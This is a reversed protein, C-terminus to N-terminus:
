APGFDSTTTSSIPRPVDVSSPNAIAQATKSAKCEAIRQRSNKGCMEVFKRFQRIPQWPQLRVRHPDLFPLTGHHEQVLDGLPGRSTGPAHMDRFEGADRCLHDGLSMTSPPGPFVLRVAQCIPM